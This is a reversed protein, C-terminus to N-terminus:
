PDGRGGSGTRSTRSWTATPSSRARAGGGREGHCRACNDQTSRSGTCSSPTTPRRRDSLTPTDASSCATLLSAAALLPAVVLRRMSGSGRARRRWSPDALEAITPWSGRGRRPDADMRHMIRAASGGALRPAAPRGSWATARASSGQKSSRPTGAAVVPRSSARGLDRRQWKRDLKWCPQRPQSCEVLVEGIRYGTASACRRRTSGASRSTRESPARPGVRRPPGALAALNEASYALIAKDPGGHNVLDAQEDGRASGCDGSREPRRSAGQLHRFAVSSGHRQEGRRPRPRSRHRGARIGRDHERPGSRARTPTAAASMVGVGSAPAPRYGVATLAALATAGGPEALLATREWLLRRPAVIDADEVVRSCHEAGTCKSPSRASAAHASPDVGIGSLEVRRARRGRHGRRTVGGAARGRRGRARPRCVLCRRRRHARWGRRRRPRHRYRPAQAALESGSRARVRSSRPSTSAHM